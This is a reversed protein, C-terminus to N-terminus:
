SSEWPAEDQINSQTKSVDRVYLLVKTQAFSQILNYATHSTNELFAAESFKYKRSYM